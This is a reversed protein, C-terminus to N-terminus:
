LYVVVDDMRKFINRKAQVRDCSGTNWTCLVLSRRRLVSSIRLIKGVRGGPAAAWMKSLQWLFTHHIIRSKLKKEPPWTLQAIRGYTRARSIHVDRPPAQQSYFINLLKLM